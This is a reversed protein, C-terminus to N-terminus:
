DRALIKDTVWMGDGSGGRVCLVIIGVLFLLVAGLALFEWVLRRRLTRQLAADEITDSGVSHSQALLGEDVEDVKHHRHKSSNGLPWWSSASSPLNNAHTLAHGHSHFQHDTYIHGQNLPDPHSSRTSLPSTQPSCPSQDSSHFPSPLNLFSISLSPRSDAEM